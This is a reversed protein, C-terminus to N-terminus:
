HLRSISPRQFVLSYWVLSPHQMWFFWVTQTVSVLYIFLFNAGLIVFCAVSIFHLQVETMCTSLTLVNWESEVAVHAGVRLWATCISRGAGLLCYCKWIQLSNQWGAKEPQSSAHFPHREGQGTYCLCCWLMVRHLNTYCQLHTCTHRMGKSLYTLVVSVYCLPLLGVYPQPVACQLTLAVADKCKGNKGCCRQFQTFSIHSLSTIHGPTM